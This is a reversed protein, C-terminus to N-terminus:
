KALHELSLRDTVAIVVISGSSLSKSVKKIASGEGIECWETADALGEM